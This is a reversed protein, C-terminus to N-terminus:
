FSPCLVELFYRRQECSVNEREYPMKSDMQQALLAELYYKKLLKLTEDEKINSSRAKSSLNLSDPAPPPPASSGPSPRTSDSVPPSSRSSLQYLNSAASAPYEPKSLSSPYKPSTSSQHQTALCSEMSSPLLGASSLALQTELNLQSSSSVPAASCGLGSESKLSSLNLSPGPPISVSYQQYVHYPPPSPVGPDPDQSFINWTAIIFVIRWVSANGRHLHFSSRLVRIRSQPLTRLLALHALLHLLLLAGAAQSVEWYLAVLLLRPGLGPHQHHVPVSPLDGNNSIM